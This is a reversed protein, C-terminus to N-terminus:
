WPVGGSRARASPMRLEANEWDTQKIGATMSYHGGRKTTGAVGMSATHACVLLPTIM